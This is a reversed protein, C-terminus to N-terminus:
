LVETMTKNLKCIRLINHKSVSALNVIDKSATIMDNNIKNIDKQISKLRQTDTAFPEKDTKFTFPKILYLMFLLILLLGYTQKTDM